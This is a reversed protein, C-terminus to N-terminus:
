ASRRRRAAVCCGALVLLGSAPGPVQFYSYTLAIAGSSRFDTAYIAWHGDGSLWQAMTRTYGELMGQGIYPEVWSMRWGQTFSWDTMGFDHYDAGRHPVGDSAALSVEYTEDTGIYRTSQFGDWAQVQYALVALSQTRVSALNEVALHSSITVDYSLHVDRLIRRGGQVDFRPLRVLEQGDAVAYDFHAMHREVNALAGRGCLVLAGVACTRIMTKM